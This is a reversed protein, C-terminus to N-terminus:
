REYTGVVEGCALVHGDIAQVVDDRTPVGTGLALPADLAFVQFHYHHVGHGPPPLPGAYGDQQTSNRGQCLPVPQDIRAGPALGEPLTDLAPPLGYLVWHVYPQPSPADPDECLVVVERADAPVGSWHLPPSLDDAEASFRAPIPQFDGFALSTVRLTQRTELGLRHIAVKEEGARLPRVLSELGEKVTDTIGM